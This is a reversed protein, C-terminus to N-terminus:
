GARENTRTLRALYTIRTTRPLGLLRGHTDLVFIDVGMPYREVVQERATLLAPSFGPLAAVVPTATAIGPGTLSFADPATTDPALSDVLIVLTASDDPYQLSGRRLSKLLAALLDPEVSRVDVVVVDAADPAAIAVRTRRVLLDSLEDAFLAPLIALSIEHDLLMLLLTAPWLTRKGIRLRDLIPHPVLQQITGPMALADLTARYAHQTARIPDRSLHTPPASAAM